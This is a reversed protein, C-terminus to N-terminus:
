DVKGKLAATAAADSLFWSNNVVGCEMSKKKQIGNSKSWTGEQQLGFVVGKTHLLRDKKHHPVM